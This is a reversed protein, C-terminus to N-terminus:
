RNFFRHKGTFELGAAVLGEYLRPAVTELKENRDKDLDNTFRIFEDQLQELHPPRPKRLEQLALEVKGRLLERCELRLYREWDKIAKEVLAPPLIQTSLFPPDSLFNLHFEIRHRDCFRLVDLLGFVNYAQFTPQVTVSLGTKVYDLINREVADWRSPYRIYELLRGTADLSFALMVGHFESLLSVAQRSFLTGNAHVYIDVNRAFGGSVFRELIPVFSPSILPEGGAFQISRVREPCALIDSTIVGQDTHWSMATPFRMPLGGSNLPRYTASTTVVLHSVGLGRKDSTIKLVSQKNEQYADPQAAVRVRYSWDKGGIRDSLILQDNLYVRFEQRRKKEAVGSIYIETVPYGNGAFTVTGGQRSNLRRYQGGESGLLESFGSYDSGPIQNPLLVRVRTWATQSDTGRWSAHVEDAAIRSSYTGCCSRCKLNCLNGLWLQFSAPPPAHGSSRQVLESGFAWVDEPTSFGATMYKNALNRLSVAGVSERHYCEFCAGVPEGQVMKRRVERLYDSNWIKLLPDFQLSLPREESSIHEHTGACLRAKGDPQIDIHLFPLVCFKGPLSSVGRLSFRGAKM